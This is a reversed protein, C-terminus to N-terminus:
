VGSCSFTTGLDATNSAASDAFEVQLGASDVCWLATGQLPAIVAWEEDADYCDFTNADGDNLRVINAEVGDITTANCFGSYSPTL